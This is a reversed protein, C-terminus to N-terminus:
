EIRRRRALELTRMGGGIGPSRIQVQQRMRCPDAAPLKLWPKRALGVQLVTLFYKSFACPNLLGWASQDSPLGFLAQALTRWLALLLLFYFIRGSVERPRVM